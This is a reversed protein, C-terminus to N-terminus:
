RCPREVYVVWSVARPSSVVSFYSPICVIYQKCLQGQIENTRPGALRCLREVHVVWSVKSPSVVVSFYSLIHYLVLKFTSLRIPLLSGFISDVHKVVIM